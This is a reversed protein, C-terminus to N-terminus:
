LEAFRTLHANHQELLETFKNSSFYNYELQRSHDLPDGDVSSALGPHCMILGSAIVGQLFKEFYQAYNAAKAFNYCGSFSQNHAIGERVAIECLRKAGTFAIINTKLSAPSRQWSSRLYVKDLLKKQDLVELLADRIVPLHHVHEHGDIFDPPRGLVDIFMDLQMSFYQKISQKNLCRLHSLVLLRKLSQKHMAKPFSHTLNFHLGLDLGEQFPLLQLAHQPWLPSETMCSVATLRSKKVLSIIGESVAESQAFDDACLVIKKM